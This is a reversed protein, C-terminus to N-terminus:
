LIIIIPMLVRKSELKKIELSQRDVKHQQAFWDTIESILGKNNNEIIKKAVYDDISVSDLARSAQADAQTYVLWNETQAINTDSINIKPCSNQKNQFLDTIPPPTRM